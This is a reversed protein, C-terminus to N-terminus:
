SIKLFAGSVRRQLCRTWLIFRVQFWKGRAYFRIRDRHNGRWDIRWGSNMTGGAAETVHNGSPLTLGSQVGIGSAAAGIGPRVSRADGAGRQEVFVLELLAEVVLHEGCGAPRPRMAICQDLRQRLQGGIFEAAQLLPDVAGQQVLPDGEGDVAVVLGDFPDERDVADRPQHERAVPFVDLATQNLANLRQVQKQRIYVALAADDAVAHDRLIEYAAAGVVPRFHFAHLHREIGVDRDAAGVDNTGM